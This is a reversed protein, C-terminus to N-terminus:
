KSLHHYPQIKVSEGINSAYIWKANEIQKFNEARGTLIVGAFTATKPNKNKELYSKLAKDSRYVKGDSGSVSINPQNESLYQKANNQFISYSNEMEKVPSVKGKKEYKQYIPDLNAKNDKKLAKDLEKNLKKQESDSLGLDFYPTFGFQNQISTETLLDSPSGIWIWNLQLDKPIMKQVEKLTYDKDFTVAVEVAQDAMQNLLSIDQTLKLSRDSSSEKNNFFIPIKKHTKHTYLTKGQDGSMLGSDSGGTYTSLFSYSEEYPEFPVEIGDINKFQSARFIGTYQSSPYFGWSSYSINPFAIQSLLNYRKQIKQGNKSTLKNLGVVVLIMVLVSILVSIVVNRFFSKRKSRIAVQEFSNLTKM